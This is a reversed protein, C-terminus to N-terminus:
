LLPSETTLRQSFPLYLSRRDTPGDTQDPLSQIPHGVVGLSGAIVGLRELSLCDNLTRLM